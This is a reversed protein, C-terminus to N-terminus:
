SPLPFGNGPLCKPRIRDGPHHTPLKEYRFFLAKRAPRAISNPQHNPLAAAIINRLMELHKAQMKLDAAYSQPAVRGFRENPLLLLLFADAVWQQSRSKQGPSM